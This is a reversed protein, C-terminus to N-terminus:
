VNIMYTRVDTVESINQMTNVINQPILEPHYWWDEFPSCHNPSVNSVLIKYGKSELYERSKDRYSNTLDVYHDHEYTIIAFKYHDFPIKLLIEYTTESPECDLQLYDFINGKNFENLMNLYDIKTADECVIKNKRQQSFIDCLDKRIEISIGDWGFETELLATNNQYFPEQAGIELYLGNKKGNLASLVFLDQFSQSYNKEIKECGDFNFRLKKGNDKNYKIEDESIYGTALSILYKQIKDFDEERIEHSHNNKIEQLLSRTEHEKGWWWASVAKEYLIGYKGPYEVYTRLPKSNFDCNILCFESNAYCDQWWEKRQAFRALLYYAEPRHPLFMQAQWLLSRASGDRTGQKDYCHSARILAEYSLDKDTDVAREACRLFYSVAPATHGNNEYWLGLDFNHEPNETDMSYNYLLTEIESKEKKPECSVSEPLLFEKVRELEFIIQPLCELPYKKLVTNVHGSVAVSGEEAVHNDIFNDMEEGYCKNYVIHSFEHPYHSYSYAKIKNREKGGMWSFHWGLDEYRILGEGIYHIPYSLNLGSRIHNPNNVLLQKKTAMFLSNDWKLPKDTLTDYTRLDARCQLYVLPIKIIINQNMRVFDCIYWIHVPNIIEDCDGVIFIDDDNFKDIIGMLADRQKRERAGIRMKVEDNYNFFRDSDTYEVYEENDHLNIEIVEIKEENWLGLEKLIKKCSFEKKNGTFSRDADVIIFKDVYDNLLKIRLELLEKENFFIFYDIVKPSPDPNPNIKEKINVVISKMPDGVKKNKWWNIVKEHAIYHNNKQGDNVDNDSGSFTSQFEINEVFLPVTYTKGFSNFIINEILPMIAQNPINLHYENGVIYTDIIKKAHERTLIYATAAWDNWMRERIEFSEFDDRITLLQVCDADDPIRDLFEEWTFDWYEVTELSLDDECFFGYIEDTTDYWKKIAKLHSVVCGKTGDNLQYAYEGLVIDDSESFRKSIIPIPTINYKEFQKRISNQRDVSEELTVYYVSTFGDLKNSENKEMKEEALYYNKYVEEINWNTKPKLYIDRNSIYFYDSQDDHLIKDSNILKERSKNTLHSVLAYDVQFQLDEESYQNQMYSKFYIEDEVNYDESYEIRKKDPHPIHMISYDFYIRKHELNLKELRKIIEGDEWGYSQIDEDFGGVKLFNEKSLYLLGKLYKFYHSYTNVYDAIEYINMSSFDLKTDDLPAKYNKYTPNGTLFSYDDVKYNEFFNYYPNILYDCDVKMIYDGTVLSAALNLPQSLNFYKKNDVRVLKIKDSLKLLDEISNDSSWDVIIIEKIEDFMLWSNLSLKLANYRNKCACILSIKNKLSKSKDKIYLADGWVGTYYWQTEVRNFGYKLLFEDIEEVRANGEYVEDCNVECYIYDINDLTKSAGKLVELEYGQVDIVMMNCGSCDYDDLKNMQVEETGNFSVEPHATLHVKPTLISSSQAQNSSINMLVKKNDNGLAVQHAVINVDDNAFTKITDNLVSFNESLPEFLIVKKINLSKYKSIENGYHGGIHIIGSSNLDYKSYAYNFDLIM